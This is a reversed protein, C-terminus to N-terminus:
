INLVGVELGEVIGEIDIVGLTKGLKSGVTFGLKTGVAAGVEIGM